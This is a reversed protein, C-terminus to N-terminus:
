VRRRSRSRGEARRSVREIVLGAVFLVIACSILYGRDLMITPYTPYFGLRFLHVVHLLPNFSLIYRLHPPFYDPMFSVGSFFMLLRTVAPSIFM